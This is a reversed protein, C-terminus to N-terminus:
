RLPAPGLSSAHQLFAQINFVRPSIGPLPTEPPRIRRFHGLGVPPSSGWSSDPDQLPKPWRVRSPLLGRYALYLPAFGSSALGGLFTPCAVFPLPRPSIAWSPFFSPRLGQILRPGGSLLGGLNAKGRHPLWANQIGRLFIAVSM